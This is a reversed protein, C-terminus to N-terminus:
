EPEPAAPKCVLDIQTCTANRVDILPKCEAASQENTCKLAKATAEKCLAKMDDCGDARAEGGCVALVAVATLFLPSWKMQM